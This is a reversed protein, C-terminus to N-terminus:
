SSSFMTAVNSGAPCQTQGYVAWRDTAVDIFTLTDGIAGGTTTGNWTITDDGTAGFFATQAAADVDLISISGLISTNTTDAAVFTTGNTNVEGMAFTYTNGTGTAEPFTYAAAATGTIYNIRNANAAATLAVTATLTVPVRNAVGAVTTITATTITAATITAAAVSAGDVFNDRTVKKIEGASIDVIPVLDGSAAAAGLSNLRNIDGEMLLAAM